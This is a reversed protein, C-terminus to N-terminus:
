GAVTSRSPQNPARAVNEPPVLLEEGRVAEFRAIAPQDRDERAALEHASGKARGPLVGEARRPGAELENAARVAGDRTELQAGAAGVADEELLPAPLRGGIM